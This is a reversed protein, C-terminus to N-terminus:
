PSSKSPTLKCTNIIIDKNNIYAKTIRANTFFSTRCYELARWEVPICYYTINYCLM